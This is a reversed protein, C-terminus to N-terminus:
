RALAQIGVSTMFTKPDTIRNTFYLTGPGLALVLADTMDDGFVDSPASTAGAWEVKRIGGFHSVYLTNGEVVFDRPFEQEFSRRPGGELSIGEISQGARFWAYGGSVVLRTQGVNMASGLSEASQPDAGARPMRYLRTLLPDEGDDELWVIEDGVLALARTTEFSQYLTTAAGISDAPLTVIENGATAFIENGDVVLDGVPEMYLYEAAGGDKPLRAIYDGGLFVDDAGVRIQRPALAAFAELEEPEEGGCLPISQVIISQGLNRQEVFWIREGDTEMLPIDEAGDHLTVPATTSFSSCDGAGDGGGCAVTVLLLPALPAYRM